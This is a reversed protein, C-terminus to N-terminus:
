RKRSGRESGFRRRRWGDLSLRVEERRGKRRESGSL